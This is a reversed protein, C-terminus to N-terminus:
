PHRLCEASGKTTLIALCHFPVIKWVANCTFLATKVSVRFVSNLTREDIRQELM